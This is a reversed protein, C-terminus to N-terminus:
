GPRVARYLTYSRRGQRFDEYIWSGPSGAWLMAMRRTGPPLWARIERLRRDQDRDLGRLINPTIDRHAIASLGADAMQSLALALDQAPAAGAPTFDTFLFEGGPKLVRMVQGFFAARDPYCHASEVNLVADFVSEAFPLALADGRTFELGGLGDQGCHVRQCFAVAQHALDCGVIRAPELYRRVYSVGGGRGSGVDLVTKGRLDTQSAVAHYLQACYRQPEDEPHLAIAEAGPDADYGYNMFTLATAQRFHWGIVEYLYRARSGFFWKRRSLYRRTM